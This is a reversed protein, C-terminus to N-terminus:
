QKKKSNSWGILEETEKRMGELSSNQYIWMQGQSNGEVVQWGKDSHAMDWAIFKITPFRNAAETVTEELLDWEQIQFGRFRVGTDPHVEFMDGAETAADSEITHTERNIAATLGGAGGNDVINSGRGARLYACIIKVDGDKNYTVVRVTNVSEPHVDRIYKKNIILEECVFPGVSGFLEDFMDGIDDCEEVDIIKVGQGLSGNTPKIIFKGYKVAYDVFQRKQSRDSIDLVERKYLDPMREYCTYKNDLLPKEQEDTNIRRYYNLRFLDSIYDARDRISMDMLHFGFYETFTFDFVYRCYLMDVIIDRVDERELIHPYNCRLFHEVGTILHSYKNSSYLMKGYAERFEDTLRYSDLIMKQLEGAESLRERTFDDAIWEVPETRTIEEADQRKIDLRRCVSIGEGLRSAAFQKRWEALNDMYAYKYKRNNLYYVRRRKGAYDSWCYCPLYSDTFTVKGDPSKKVKLYIVASTNMNYQNSCYLLNGLSYATPMRRNWAGKVVEYRLLYQNGAGVVYDIGMNALAKTVVRQREDVPLMVDVYYRWHVYCIKLDVKERDMEDVKALVESLHILSRYALNISLDIIGIKIGKVKIITSGVWKGEPRKIEHDDIQKRIKDGAGEINRAGVTLVDFGNDKVATIFEDPYDYAESVSAVTLDAKEIVPKMLSFCDYYTLQEEGFREKEEKLENQCALEGALLITAKRSKKVKKKEENEMIRIKEMQGPGGSLRRIEM